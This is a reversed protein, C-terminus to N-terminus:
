LSPTTAFGRERGAGERAGASLWEIGLHEGHRALTEASIAWFIGAGAVQPAM